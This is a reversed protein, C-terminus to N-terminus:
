LYFAYVIMYKNPLTINLHSLVLPFRLSIPFCGAVSTERAVARESANNSRHGPGLPHVYIDNHVNEGKRQLFFHDDGNVLVCGCM